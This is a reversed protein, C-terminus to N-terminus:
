NVVPKYIISISQGEYGKVRTRPCKVNNLDITTDKVWRIHGYPLPELRVDCGYENEMRYKLVDFQLTGVVGVIIESMELNYDQFIQRYRGSCDTYCRKMFQKRKMSDLAM